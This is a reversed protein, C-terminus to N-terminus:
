LVYRGLSQFMRSIPALASEASLGLVGKFLGLGKDLGRWSWARGETSHVEEQLGEDAPRNVGTDETSSESSWWTSRLERVGLM